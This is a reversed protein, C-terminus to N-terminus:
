PVTERQKAELAVTAEMSTVEVEQRHEVVTVIELDNLAVNVRKGTEQDYVNLGHSQADRQLDRLLLSRSAQAKYGRRRKKGTKERAYYYVQCIGTKAKAKAEYSETIRGQETLWDAYALWGAKDDRKGRLALLFMREQTPLGELKRYASVGNM